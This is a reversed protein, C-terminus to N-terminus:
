ITGMGHTFDPLPDEDLCVFLHLCNQHINVHETKAPLVMIAKREDGAWHRKLYTLEEYTPMRSPHAMSLHLWVRGDQEVAISAIVSLKRKDNLWQGGDERYRFERWGPPTRLGNLYKRVHENPIIFAKTM